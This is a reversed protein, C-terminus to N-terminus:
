ADAAGSTVVTSLGSPPAAASVRSACTSAVSLSSPIGAVEVSGNTGAASVAAADDGVCAFIEFRPGAWVKDELNWVAGPSVRFM